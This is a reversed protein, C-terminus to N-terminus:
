RRKTARTRQGDGNSVQLFRSVALGSSNGSVLQAGLLVLSEAKLSVKSCQVSVKFVAILEKLDMGCTVGFLKKPNSEHREGKPHEALQSDTQDPQDLVVRGGLQPNCSM